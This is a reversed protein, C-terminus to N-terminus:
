GLGGGLQGMLNSMAVGMDQQQSALEGRQQSEIQPEFRKEMSQIYRAEWDVDQVAAPQVMGGDMEDGILQADYRAKGATVDAAYSSSYQDTLHSGLSALDEDTAERGVMARVSDKVTVEVRAPDMPRFAEPVFAGRPARAPASITRSAFMNKVTQLDVEQWELGLGNATTMWEKMQAAEVPGWNGDSIENRDLAGVEVLRTQVDRINEPSLGAFLAWNDNQDYRPRLTSAGYAGGGVGYNMADLIGPSAFSEFSDRAQQSYRQETNEIKYDSGFGGLFQDGGPLYRSVDAGYGGKNQIVDLVDMYAGETVTGPEMGLQRDLDAWATSVNQSELELRPRLDAWTDQAAQDEGTLDIGLQNTIIADSAVEGRRNVLEGTDTLWIAGTDKDFQYKTPTTRELIEYARLQHAYEPNEENTLDMEEAAALEDEVDRKGLWRDIQRNEVDEMLGQMDAPSLNYQEAAKGLLETFTVDTRGAGMFADTRADVPMGADELSRVLDRLALSSDSRSFIDGVAEKIDVQDTRDAILRATISSVVGGIPGQLAVLGLQAPDFNRDMWDQTNTAWDTQQEPTKVSHAENIAILTDHDTKRMVPDIASAIEAITVAQSDEWSDSRIAWREAVELRKRLQSDLLGAQELEKAYAETEENAFAM